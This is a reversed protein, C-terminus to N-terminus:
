PPSVPDPGRDALRLGELDSVSTVAYAASFGEVLLQEVVEVSTMGLRDVQALHRDVVEAPVVRG